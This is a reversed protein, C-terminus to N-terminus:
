VLSHFSEGSAVFTFIFAGRQAVPVGHLGCSTAFTAVRALFAFQFINVIYTIITKIYKAPVKAKQFGVASMPLFQPSRSIWLPLFMIELEELHPPCSHIAMVRTMHTAFNLPAMSRDLCCIFVSYIMISLHTM